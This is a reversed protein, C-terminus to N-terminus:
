IYVLIFTPQHHRHQIFTISINGLDLEDETIVDKGEKFFAQPKQKCKYSRKNVNSKIRLYVCTVM